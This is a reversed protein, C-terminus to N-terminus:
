TLLHLVTQVLFMSLQKEDVQGHFGFLKTFTSNKEINCKSQRQAPGLLLSLACYFIPKIGRQLTHDIENLLGTQSLLFRM